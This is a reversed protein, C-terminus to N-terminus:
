YRDAEGAVPASTTTNGDISFDTGTMQVIRAQNPNPYALAIAFSFAPGLPCTGSLTYQLNLTGEGDADIAYTSNVATGTCIDGGDNYTLSGSTINGKGDAVFVGSAVIARKTVAYDTGAFRFGYNGQLNSDSEAANAQLPGLAFAAAALTLRAISLM